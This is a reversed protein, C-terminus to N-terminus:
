NYAVHHPDLILCAGVRELPILFSCHDFDLLKVLINYPDISGSSDSKAVALEEAFKLRSNSSQWLWLLGSGWDKRGDVRWGM